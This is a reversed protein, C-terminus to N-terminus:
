FVSMSLGSAMLQGLQRCPALQADSLAKPALITQPTQAGVNVILPEAIAKLRWGTVIREIQKAAGQGDSGACVMAAYPRAQVREIVHYYSRDFCDKMIGSMSGLYEPTAFIYGHAALFDDASTQSAAKLNVVVDNDAAAAQACACAMQAAGGTMSHYVVLLLPRRNSEHM